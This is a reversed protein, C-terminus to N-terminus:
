APTFTARAYPITADLRHAAAGVDEDDSARVRTSDADIYALALGQPYRGSNFEILERAAELAEDLTDFDYLLNRSETDWLGYGIM